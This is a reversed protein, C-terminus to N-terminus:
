LIDYFLETERWSGLSEWCNWPVNPQVFAASAAALGSTPLEVQQIALNKAGAM